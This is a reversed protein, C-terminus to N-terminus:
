HVACLPTQLDVNPLSPHLIKLHPNAFYTHAACM